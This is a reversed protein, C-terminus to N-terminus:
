ENIAQLVVTKEGKFTTGIKMPVFVTQLAIKLNKHTFSGTFKKEADINSADFTIKYQNELAKIVYKLSVSKFTSEGNKWSPETQVVEWKEPVTDYEKRFAKGKTIIDKHGKVEAQVKGEFCVVEFFDKDNKVNFQTGLVSVKGQNTEVVFKSGKEVIFYAEGDLKVIRETDWDAKQYSITTKSNLIVKSNDPLTIALQEGFSTTHKEPLNTFFFLGLLIIVSAAAVYTMRRFLPKIVKGKKRTANEQVKKLVLEKDFEPAELELSKEAIKKYILFDSSAEFDKLEKESLENNLWRALFTESFKNKM